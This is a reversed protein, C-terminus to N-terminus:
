NHLAKISRASKSPLSANVEKVVQRRGEGGDKKGMNECDCLAASWEGNNGCTRKRERNKFRVGQLQEGINLATRNRREQLYSKERTSLEERKYIIRKERTFLERREQLYSKERTFLERREQLYNEAGGSPLALPPSRRL